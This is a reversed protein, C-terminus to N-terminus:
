FLPLPLIIAVIQKRAIAIVESEAVKSAQSVHIWHGQERVRQRSLLITTANPPSGTVEAIRNAHCGACRQQLEVVAPCELFSFYFSFTFVSLDTRPRIRISIQKTSGRAAQPRQAIAM